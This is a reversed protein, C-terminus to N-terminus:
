ASEADPAATMDLWNAKVSGAELKGDIIARPESRTYCIRWGDDTKRYRDTYFSSLLRFTEERPDFTAFGLNWVAEATDGSVTIEANHGQHVDTIPRSVAMQTFIGVLGDLDFEGLPPFDIVADETFCARMAEVDKRDCANLYRAKLRRIDSEAELRALRDELSQSM